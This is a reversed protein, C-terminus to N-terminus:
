FLKHQSEQTRLNVRQAASHQAPVSRVAIKVCLQLQSHAVGTLPSFCVQCLKVAPLPKGQLEPQKKCKLQVAPILKSGRQMALPSEDVGLVSMVNREPELMLAKIWAGEGCGFDVVSQCGHERVVQV